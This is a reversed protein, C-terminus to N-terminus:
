IQLVYKGRRTGSILDLYASSFDSLGGSFVIENHPIVLEGAQFAQGIEQAAQAYLDAKDFVIFGQIRLRELIAARINHVVAPLPAGRESTQGCMIVTGMSDMWTLTTDFIAGGVNDFFVKVREPCHAHLAEEFNGARYDICHELGLAERAASCKQRGGATGIVRAGRRKALQAVMGGVLGSAGSVLVTHGELDYGAFDLGAYATFATTLGLAGAWKEPSAQTTDLTVVGAGDSIARQQAGFLGAVFDGERFDQHRSARVHGVSTARITEGLPINPVYSRGERMWGLMAVDLTVYSIAVEFCGRPVEPAAEEVLSVCDPEYALGPRKTLILRQNTAM